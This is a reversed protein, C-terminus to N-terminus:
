FTAPPYIATFIYSFNFVKCRRHPQFFLVWWGGGSDLLLLMVYIAHRHHHANTHPARENEESLSLSLYYHHYHSFAIISIISNFSFQRVYTVGSFERGNAAATQRM